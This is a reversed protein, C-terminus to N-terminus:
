ANGRLAEQTGMRLNKMVKLSCFKQTLVSANCPLALSTYYKKLDLSELISQVVKMWGNM